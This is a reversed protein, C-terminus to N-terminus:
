VNKMSVANLLSVICSAREILTLGTGQSLGGRKRERERQEGAGRERERERWDFKIEASNRQCSM